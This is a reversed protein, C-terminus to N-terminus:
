QANVGQEQAVEIAAKSISISEEEVPIDINEFYSVPLEFHTGISAAVAIAWDKEYTDAVITLSEPFLGYITYFIKVNEFGFAEYFYHLDSNEDVIEAREEGQSDVYEVIQHLEFGYCDKMFDMDKSFPYAMFKYDQKQIQIKRKELIEKKQKKTIKIVESFTKGKQWKGTKNQKPSM